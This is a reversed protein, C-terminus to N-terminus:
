FSTVMGIKAGFFYTRCPDWALPALEFQFSLGVDSSHIGPDSIYRLYIIYMITLEIIKVIGFFLLLLM